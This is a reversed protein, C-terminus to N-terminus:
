PKCFFFFFSAIYKNLVDIQKERENLIFLNNIKIFYKDYKNVGEGFNKIEYSCIACNSWAEKGIM